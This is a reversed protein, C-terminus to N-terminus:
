THRQHYNAARAYEDPSESGIPPFLILMRPVRIVARFAVYDHNNSLQNSLSIEDIIKVNGGMQKYLKWRLQQQKM